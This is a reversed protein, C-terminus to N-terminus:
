KKKPDFKISVLECAFLESGVEVELSTPLNEKIHAVKIYNILIYFSIKTVVSSIRLM